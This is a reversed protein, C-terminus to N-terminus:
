VGEDTQINSQSKEPRQGLIAQGVRVITAGEQIAVEFDSSTGMSLEEWDNDQFHHALFNRLANLKAFYSRVDNPNELLPPMTMLGAVKLHPLRLLASIDPLLDEWRDQQWAPWGFKSEEGSVNFELLVPLIKQIGDLYRELKEALRISDLSEMINFYEAVMHAKRSQVHGIMHWEIGPLNKLALIKSVSEEPYNEGFLHAGAQYAAQIVQVSHFKSVVVLKIQGADRGCSLAAQFMREQINEFNSRIVTEIPDM